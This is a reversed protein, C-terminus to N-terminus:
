KLNLYVTNADYSLSDAGGPPLGTNALGAFTTGNLGGAATLIAYQKEVYSGFAFTAQVTGALTATGSVRALSATASNVQVAYFAGSQFALNGAVTTAAGPIGATGPAFTGGSNVTVNAT